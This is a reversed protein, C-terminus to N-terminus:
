QKIWKVGDPDVLTDDKITANNTKNVSILLQELNLTLKSDKKQYHGTYIVDKGDNTTALEFTDGSHLTLTENKNKSNIYTTETGKNCGAIFVLTILIIINKINLM